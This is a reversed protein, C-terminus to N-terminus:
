EEAAEGHVLYSILGILDEKPLAEFGVPMISMSSASLSEINKRQIVHKQAAVDLIEVTTQTEGEMRGSYSLGDKTEVTWLRYNAEVSRNPDLIELLIDSRDRSGIGTLNPGVSGGKGDFVHCVACNTAFVAEGRKVDGKERALPLLQEVVEERDESVDTNVRSLRFARRRIDRSPNQRLQSWHEPALDRPSITDSEIADFLAATWQSRRTLIQIAARRVVPTYLGWHSVLEKGTADNRSAGIANVFGTSIGPASLLTVHTLITRAVQPEDEIAFWRRAADSRTSDDLLANTVQEKLLGVIAALRDDFLGPVKWRNALGLLRDRVSEPLANMLHVLRDRDSASLTPAVGAPWGDMIGDLVAEAVSPAARELSVLTDVISDVPGRQAYHTTVRRVVRGLGEGLESGPAATLAIDDFWAVGTARGWGGFLCNITLQSRQGSNFNLVAKTWDSTGVVSKTAGNVPDQLEHVNLLAGLANGRTQLGETRIWGSLRYDTDPRVRVRTAWSLDGGGESRISVSREGTRAFRMLELEGAGSHTSELWHVPRDERLSEFSGNRILNAESTSATDTPEPQFGNLVAKIFGADHKAAAATAADLIWRDDSNESECLLAFIATGASENSPLESLSLLASKRNLLTVDKLAGSNLLAVASDNLRPYVMMAAKRVSASPHTLASTVAAVVGANSRDLAGLGELTWLAHVAGPTNGIEDVDRDLMLESLASVVDLQGREVLLRQAHLRWLLNDNKLTALLSASDAGELHALTPIRGEQYSVRYIRGHSRDRLPTDYANGKGTEFGKPTPNHQIIYNYWDVIWLAGDPGVEAYVPSTWEDDSALFNRANHAVFGAGKQRLFFRGLIHGTPEAVFQARNWYEEPFHRATYIASGSGATYQDHWDVQRVKETIPYFRQTDAISELRSASWGNVQEYYRNAIPMYMSANGNATSGIVVNDETFALGWTNNNSSRVFELESGDPRFRFIGQGFRIQKGGVEGDFGSYGVVGWIWNDFGYRLNSATAHTDGTGWGEFLDRRVDAVDDGDTDGLWETKGSHIVIVGDNAFVFSTPISLKDAFVTVKDMRGDQDTDELIKLLDRGEGEPQLQNPYDLTESIWLRGRHDFALWLPNVIQPESAVLEVEFGPFMSLHRMSEEPTLPDQMTQIPDGQTGWRANQVYNPLPGAAKSYSFSPLGPVVKLRHPSNESVWLIGREVLDHFGSQGWTRQDHGWATYFVRGEGQTRVWTWPEAGESHRREALVVRDQNHKSHVYSEDWSEIPHLGRMVPHDHDVITDSFVGAGHSQFQAGVLEIYNPSNHFCFSACHIPVLGGGNEVFDLLAQEQESSIETINSYILLADYGALRAAHLDTVDGTYTLEIKREALVPQLQAFRESPKHPGNDGLFLVRTLNSTISEAEAYALSMFAILLGLYLRRCVRKNM